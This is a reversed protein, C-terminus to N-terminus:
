FSIKAAFALMNSQIALVLTDNYKEINCKSIICTKLYM